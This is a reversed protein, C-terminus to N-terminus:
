RPHYNSSCFQHRINYDINPSCEYLAAICPFSNWSHNYWRIYTNRVEGAGGGRRDLESIIVNFMKLLYEERSKIVYIVYEILVQM